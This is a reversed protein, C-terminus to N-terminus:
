MLRDLSRLYFYANKKKATSTEYTAGKLLNIFYQVNDLYTFRVAYVTTHFGTQCMRLPIQLLILIITAFQKQLHMDFIHFFNLHLLKSYKWSVIHELLKCVRDTVKVVAAGCLPKVSGSPQLFDLRKRLKWLTSVFMGLVCTQNKQWNNTSMVPRLSVLVILGGCGDLVRWQPNGSQTCLETKETTKSLEQESLIFRQFM